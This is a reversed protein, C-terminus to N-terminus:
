EGIIEKYKQLIEEYVKHATENEKIRTTINENASIVGYPIEQLDSKVTDLFGDCIDIGNELYKIFEKQQNELNNNKDQLYKFGLKKYNELQKKLEKVEEKWNEMENFLEDFVDKPILYHDSGQIYYKFYDEKTM